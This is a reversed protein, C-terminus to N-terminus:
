PFMELVYAKKKPSNSDAKFSQREDWVSQWRADAALPNFRTKENM